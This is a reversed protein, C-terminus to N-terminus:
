AAELVAPRIEIYLNARKDSNLHFTNSEQRKKAASPAVAGRLWVTDLEINLHM